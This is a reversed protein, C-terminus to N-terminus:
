QGPPPGDHPPPGNPPPGGPGGPGGPRMPPQPQGMMRTVDLIIEDFRKQQEPNCLARVKQFHDFTILDLEETQVSVAKAAAQRASDSVNPQKLLEFFSEKAARVKRRLEEAAKRHELVLAEVKVQQTPDLNLEKTFFDKASGKPQPPHSQKKNLWFFAITAANAVLLLIVLWTLLKNKQTSSM